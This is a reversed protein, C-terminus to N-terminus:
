DSNVSARTKPGFYGAAPSIGKAKQYKILAAKTAPGFKTTENGQSGDIYVKCPTTENGTRPAALKFKVVFDGSALPAPVGILAESRTWRFKRGSADREWGYTGNLFQVVGKMVGSDVDFVKVGLERGDGPPVFTEASLRVTIYDYFLHLHGTVIGAQPNDDAVKVMEELWDPQPATDNNLLVIYEGHAARIAVNNGTTFGLNKKNELTKVWPYQMRLLELSNDTSGNDSVIVEFRDHPYSQKQLADLCGTLFHAGSYNVIIVSVFPAEKL